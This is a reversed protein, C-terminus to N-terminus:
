DGRILLVPIHSTRVIGEAVSGLLMHSFGSRGHTGIVILDVKNNKAEAMIVNAIREGHAELLKTKVVVGAQRLKSQAQELIKEGSCKMAHMLEAYNLYNESDFYWIDELVHVIEVCANQQRAFIIAEDLARESTTSGDIPVLVQQYM